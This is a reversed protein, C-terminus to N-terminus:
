VKGKKGDGTPIGTQKPNPVPARATRTGQMTECVVLSPLGAHLAPVFLPLDGTSYYRASGQILEKRPSPEVNWYIGFNLM